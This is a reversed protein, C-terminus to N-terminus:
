AWLQARSSERLSVLMVAQSPVNAEHFPSKASVRDDNLFWWQRHTHV